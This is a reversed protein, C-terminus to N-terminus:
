LYYLREIRIINYSKSGRGMNLKDILDEDSINKPVNSILCSYDAPTANHADIIIAKDLYPSIGKMKNNYYGIM